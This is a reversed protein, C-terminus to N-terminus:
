TPKHCYSFFMPMLVSSIGKIREWMVLLFNKFEHFDIVGNGDIDIATYNTYWIMWEYLCRGLGNRKNLIVDDDMRIQNEEGM